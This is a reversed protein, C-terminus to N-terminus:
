LNPMLTFVCWYYVNWSLNQEGNIYQNNWFPAFLFWSWSEYWLSIMGSLYTNKKLIPLAFFFFFCWYPSCFVHIYTLLIHAIPNKTVKRQHSFFTFLLDFIARKEFSHWKSIQNGFFFVTVNKQLLNDLSCLFSGIKCTVVVNERFCPCVLVFLTGM